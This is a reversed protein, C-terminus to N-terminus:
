AVAGPGNSAEGECRGCLSKHRREFMVVLRNDEKTVVIRVLHEQDKTLAEIADALAYPAVEFSVRNRIFREDSDEYEASDSM